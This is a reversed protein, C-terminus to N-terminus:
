LGHPKANTMVIRFKIVEAGGLGLDQIRWQNPSFSLHTNQAKLLTNLVPSRLNPPCIYCVLCHGFTKFRVSGYLPYSAGPVHCEKKAGEHYKVKFLAM